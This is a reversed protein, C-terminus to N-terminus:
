VRFFDVFVCALIGRVPFQACAGGLGRALLRGLFHTRRHVEVVLDLVEVLVVSSVDLDSATGM